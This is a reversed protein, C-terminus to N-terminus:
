GAAPKQEASKMPLNAAGQVYSVAAVTTLGMSSSLHAQQSITPKRM